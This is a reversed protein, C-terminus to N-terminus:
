AHDAHTPGTTGAPAPNVSADPGVGETIANDAPPAAPADLAVSTATHLAAQNQLEPAKKNAPTRATRQPRAPALDVPEPKERVLGHAALATFTPPTFEAEEGRKLTHAGHVFSTIAIAKIM